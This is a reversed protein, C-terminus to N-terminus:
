GGCGNIRQRIRRYRLWNMLPVILVLSGLPLLSQLTVWGLWWMAGGGVLLVTAVGSGAYLLHERWRYLVPPRTSAGLARYGRYWWPYLHRTAVGRQAFRRQLAQDDLQRLQDLEDSQDLDSM